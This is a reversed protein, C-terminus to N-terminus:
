GAPPLSAQQQEMEQVKLVIMTEYMSQLLAYTFGPRGDLFGRKIGYLLL